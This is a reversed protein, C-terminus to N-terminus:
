PFRHDQMHVAVGYTGEARPEVRIVNCNAAIIPTTKGKLPSTSLSVVVYISDNIEFRRKALLYMGTSSMNGMVALTEFKEMENIDGSIKAPYSSNVRPKKRREVFPKPLPDYSSAHNNM